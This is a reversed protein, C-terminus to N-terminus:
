LTLLGIFVKVLDYIASVCVGTLVLAAISRHFYSGIRSKKYYEMPPFLWRAYQFLFRGLLLALLLGYIGLLVNLFITQKDLWSSLSTSHKYFFWLVTPLFALYIIYDYAGSGHIIPRATKRTKFFDEIKQATSIVWDEDRGAVNLVSPNETPNSPLTRLDLKLSPREFGLFVEVTNLPRLNTAREAYAANSAFLSQLDDPFAREDTRPIGLGQMSDGNRAVYIYEIPVLEDVREKAQEPSDFASLDLRSIEIDKARENVEVLLECFEKLDEASLVLNSPSLDRRYLPVRNAQEKPLHSRQQADEEVVYPLGQNTDEM